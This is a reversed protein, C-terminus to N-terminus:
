SIVEWLEEAIENLAARLDHVSDKSKAKLAKKRLGELQQDLATLMHSVQDCSAEGADVSGIADQIERTTMM